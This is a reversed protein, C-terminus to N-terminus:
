DRPELSLIYATQSGPAPSEAEESGGSGAGAVLWTSELAETMLRDAVVDLRKQSDGTPNVVGSLGTEGELAARRLERALRIAGGAIAEILTAIGPPTAGGRPSEARLHRSLNQRPAIMARGGSDAEATRPRLM